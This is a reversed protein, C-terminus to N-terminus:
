FGPGAQRTASSCAPWQCHECRRSSRKGDVREGFDQSTRMGQEIASVIQRMMGSPCAAAAKPGVKEMKKGLNEGSPVHEGDDILLKGSDTLDGCSIRNLFLRSGYGRRKWGSSSEM